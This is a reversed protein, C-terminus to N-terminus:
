KIFICVNSINKLKKIPNRMKKMSANIM